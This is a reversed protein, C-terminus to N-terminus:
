MWQTPQDGDRFDELVGSLRRYGSEELMKHFMNVILSQPHPLEGADNIPWNGADNIPWNTTAWPDPSDGSGELRRLDCLNLSRGLSMSRAAFWMGVEGSSYDGEPLMLPALAAAIDIISWLRLLIEAAETLSFAALAPTEGTDKWNDVIRRERDSRPRSPTASNVTPRCKPPVIANM